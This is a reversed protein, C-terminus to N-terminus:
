AVSGVTGSRVSGTNAAPAQIRAMRIKGATVLIYVAVFSFGFFYAMPVGGDRFLTSIYGNFIWYSAFLKPSATWTVRHHFRYLFLGVMFMGGVLSPFGFISYLDAHLSWTLAFFNGYKLLNIRQTTTPKDPWIARPIPWVLLRLYQTGWNFGTREPVLEYIASSVDFEQFDSTGAGVARSKQYRDVIESISTDGTLMKRAALRDSGVVDFVLILCVGIIITKMAFSRRGRRMLGITLASLVVIVFSLRQAGVLIRLLVFAGIGAAMPPTVGYALILILLAAPIFEAFAMLYGSVGVLRQGGNSDVQVEFSQVSDVGATGYAVHTSYLGLAVLVILAAFFRVKDTIVLRTPPIRLQRLNRPEVLAPLIVAALLACNINLCTLWLTGDSPTLGITNWLLSRGILYINIPRIVYGLFHYILYLFIPHYIPMRMALVFAFCIGWCLLNIVAIYGIIEM